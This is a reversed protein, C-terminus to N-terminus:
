FPLANNDFFNPFYSTIFYWMYKTEQARGEMNVYTATKETYAAGPLIIDAMSAGHDGHSGTLVFTAM